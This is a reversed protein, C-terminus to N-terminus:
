DGAHLSGTFLGAGTVPGDSDWTEFPADDFMSGTAWGQYGSSQDDSAQDTDLDIDLDSDQDTDLNEM